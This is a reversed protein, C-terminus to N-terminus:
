VIESKSADSGFYKGNSSIENQPCYWGKSETKPKEAVKDIWPLDLHTSRVFFKKIKKKKKM